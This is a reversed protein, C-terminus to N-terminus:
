GDRRMRGMEGRGGPFIKKLYTSPLDSILLQKDIDTPILIPITVWLLRFRVWLILPIIRFDQDKSNQFKAFGFIPFWLFDKPFAEFFLFHLVKSMTWIFSLLYCIVIFFYCVVFLLYCYCTRFGWFSTEPEM